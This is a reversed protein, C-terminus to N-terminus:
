DGRPKAEALWIEADKRETFVRMQYPLERAQKRYLDLQAKHLKDAVVIASRAGICGKACLKETATAVPLHWEVPFVTEESILWMDPIEKRPDRRHLKRLAELVEWRNAEGWVSVEVYCDRDEIKYPM